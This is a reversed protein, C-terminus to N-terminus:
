DENDEIKRQKRAVKRTEAEAKKWATAPDVFDEEPLPAILPKDEELELEPEQKAVPQPSPIIEEGLDRLSVKKVAKPNAAHYEAAVQERPKIVKGGVGIIDGRANMSANGIAVSDENQALFRTMDIPVGKNSLLKM